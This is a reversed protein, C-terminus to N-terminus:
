FRSLNMSILLLLSQVFMASHCATLYRIFVVSTLIVLIERFKRSTGSNGLNSSFNGLDWTSQWIGLIKPFNGLLPLAARLGILM